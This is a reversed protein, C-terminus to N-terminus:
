ILTCLYIASISIYLQFVLCFFVLINLHCKRLKACGFFIETNLNFEYGTNYDRFMQFDLTCKEFVTICFFFSYLHFMFALSMM